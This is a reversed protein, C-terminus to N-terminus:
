KSAIDRPIKKFTIHRRELEAASLACVDAYVIYDDAEHKVRRVTARNLETVKDPEYFFYYATGNNTGLYADEGKGVVMATKTESYWVFERIAAECAKPNLLEGEMLPEGLEYYSFSGGTGEVQKEGEGYGDIVRKVREATVTEAYDDMEVLIFRRTGGDAANAKLVAHATTGSGAFSDLVISDQDTAIEMIRQILASPKPFDFKAEGDFIEKIEKTGFISTFAKEAWVTKATETVSRIKQFIRFEGDRGCTACLDDLSTQAKEKGWRWVSELGDVTQAWVEIKDNGGKLSVSFLGDSTKSDALVYFPYRLNPRNTSNFARVNRNRLGQLNFGGQSDKYKFEKGEIRIENAEFNVTSKAYVLINEHTKAFAGYRRGETKVIVTIREVYNNIGFIEDCIAKLNYLENDDISIFIVGDKALLKLLLKLRPYMMCLWKDHRTFDEGEKGVVEGLWKKIRPDNVNDNYCWGENGTNYPPDIYICKVKGEYKPLLSKLALLNDGHIIMNGSNTESGFDWKKELIHYPVDLHHNVVNEKGVWKLEVASEGTLALSSVLALCIAIHRRCGIRM